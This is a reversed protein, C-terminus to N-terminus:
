EVEGRFLIKQWILLLLFMYVVTSGFFDLFFRDDISSLFLPSCFYGYFMLMLSSQRTKVFNYLSSYMVGLIWMVAFMGLYGFDKIYRFEATYVNTDIGHFYVFPLFLPVDPLDMGLRSLIRFVGLLSYEGFVTSETWQQNVAVDFAPISLGAYHALIESFERHGALTKGTFIGLLLFMSFFIVAALFFLKMTSLNQWISIKKGRQFLVVAVVVAYIVLCILWMRGTSLIIFPIYLIVPLLLKLDRFRFKRLNYLFVYICAYALTQVIMSRYYTWRSFSVIGKEIAERNESIIETYKVHNNVVEKAIEHSEQFNYYLCITTLILAIFIKWWAIEIRNNTLQGNNTSTFFHKKSFIDGATFCMMAMPILIVSLIGIDYGWQNSFIIAMFISFLMTANMLICPQLFDFNFYVCSFLFIGAVIILLLEFM